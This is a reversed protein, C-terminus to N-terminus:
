GVKLNKVTLLLLVNTIVSNSFIEGCMLHTAASGQFIYTNRQYRWQDSADGAQTCRGAVLRARQIINIYFLLFQM